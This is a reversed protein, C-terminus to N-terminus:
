ANSSMKELSAIKSLPVVKTMGDNKDRLICFLMEGGISITHGKIFLDVKSALKWLKAEHKAMFSRRDIDVYPNIEHLWGHTSQYFRILEDPTLRREPVGEIVGKVGFELKEADTANRIISPSPFLKLSKSKLSKFIKEANWHGKADQPAHRLGIEIAVLCGFAIGEIVKRTHFACAEAKSFPDADVARVASILDLRNRVIQM